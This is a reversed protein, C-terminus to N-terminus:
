PEAAVKKDVCWTITEIFPPSPREPPAPPPTRKVLVATAIGRVAVGARLGKPIVKAPVTHEWDNGSKWTTWGDVMVPPDGEIEAEQIVLFRINVEGVLAGGPPVQPNFPGHVYLTGDRKIIPPHFDGWSM